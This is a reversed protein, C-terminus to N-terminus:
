RVDYAALQRHNAHTAPRSHDAHRVTLLQMKAIGSGVPPPESVRQTAVQNCLPSNTNVSVDVEARTILVDQVMGTRQATQDIQIMQLTYTQTMELM